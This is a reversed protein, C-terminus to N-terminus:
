KLYNTIHVLTNLPIKSEPRGSEPRVRAPWTKLSSPQRPSHAPYSQEKPNQNEKLPSTHPYLSLSSLVERGGGPGSPALPEGAASPSCDFGARLWTPVNDGISASV